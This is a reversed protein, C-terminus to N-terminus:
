NRGGVILLDKYVIGPSTMFISQAEVPERGLNERLDIRGAHGFGPIPLGTKADLAYVFNMVGVFIRSSKGDTWYVLGRNPQTGKIGPDFKWIPIGTAANLAFIKQTPTIGYLVGDVIIPSTQLGGPEGTDYTWAVQLQKVNNRSIQALPSYHDNFPGGGYAAWDSKELTPANSPKQSHAQIPLKTASLLAILSGAALLACITGRVRVEPHVIGSGKRRTM